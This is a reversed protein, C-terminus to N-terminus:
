QLVGAGPTSAPPSAQAREIASRLEDWSLGGVSVYTVTAARTWSSRSPSRRLGLLSHFITGELDEVLPLAINSQRLYRPPSTTSEGRLGHRRRRQRLSDRARVFDQMEATCVHCWTAWFDIVVVKGRFDSSRSRETRRNSYRLEASARRLPDNRAGNVPATLAALVLAALM